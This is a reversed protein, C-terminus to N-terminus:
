TGEYTEELKYRLALGAGCQGSRGCLAPRPPVPVSEPDVRRLVRVDGAVIPKEVDESAGIYTDYLDVARVGDKAQEVFQVLSEFDHTMMLRKIYM